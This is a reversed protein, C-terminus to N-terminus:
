ARRAPDPRVAAIRYLSCASIYALEVDFACNLIVMEWYAGENNFMTAVHFIALTGHIFCLPAPFWRLHSMRFFLFATVIDLLAYAAALWVGELVLWCQLALM